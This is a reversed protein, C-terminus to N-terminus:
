EDMNAFQEIEPIRHHMYPSLRNKMRRDCIFSHPDYPWISSKKLRLRELIEEVQKGAKRNNCVFPGLNDNIRLQAKKKSKMFHIEGSNIMQKYNELAFLRM